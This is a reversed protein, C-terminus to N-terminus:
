PGILLALYLLIAPACALGTLIAALRSKRFAFTIWAGIAMVLAFLPYAWVALVLIVVAPSGLQAVAMLSFGAVVAWIPLSRVVIFQSVILWIFTIISRKPQAAPDTQTMDGM